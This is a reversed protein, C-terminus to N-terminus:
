RNRWGCRRGRLRWRRRSLRRWWRQDLGRRKENYGGTRCEHDVDRPLIHSNERRGAFGQDIRGEAADCDAIVVEAAAHDVELEVGATIGSTLQAKFVIFLTPSVDLNLCAGRVGKNGGSEQGESEYAAEHATDSQLPHDRGQLGTGQLGFARHDEFPSRANGESGSTASADLYRGTM